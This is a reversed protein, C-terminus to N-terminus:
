RLIDWELYATICEPSGVRDGVYTCPSVELVSATCRTGDNRLAQTRVECSWTWVSPSLNRREDPKRSLLTTKEM